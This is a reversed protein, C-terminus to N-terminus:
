YRCFITQGCLTQRECAVEGAACPYRTEVGRQCSPTAFCREGTRCWTTAGCESVRRCEANEVEDLGCPVNSEFEEDECSPVAACNELPRCFVSQGCETVINCLGQALEDPGCPDDTQRGGPPCNPLGPCNVEPRCWTGMSEGCLQRRECEEHWPLCPETQSGVMGQRCAQDGEVCDPGADSRAGADLAAGADAAAGVDAAAGADAAPGVDDFPSNRGSCALFFLSVGMMGARM